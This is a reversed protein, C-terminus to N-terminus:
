GLRVGGVLHVFIAIAILVGAVFCKIVSMVDPPVNYVAFAVSCLFWAIIFELIM